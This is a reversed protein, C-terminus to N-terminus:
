LVSLRLHTSGCCRAQSVEALDKIGVSDDILYYWAYLLQLSVCELIHPACQSLIEQSKAWLHFSLCSILM